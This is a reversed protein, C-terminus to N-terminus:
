DPDLGCLHRLADFQDVACGDVAQASTQQRQHVEVAFQFKGRIRIERQCVVSGDVDNHQLGILALETQDDVLM